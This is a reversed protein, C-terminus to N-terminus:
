ALGELDIDAVERLANLNYKAYVATSSATRHGLFDGIVKMSMGHDLLHQATAHRLAHPGRRGSVVGVRRLRGTVIFNMANRTLPRIPAALTFFLTRDSRPPRVERIYRFIAQGVGPSLPYIDTRGSKSHRVRLTEEEWDLDDLHLGRIEGSRLGYTVFLLLIARDRKDVPGDRDTTAILRTIDDRNPVVRLPEGQYMRPLRMADVTGSPCLGRAEAFRFFMRLRQAFSRITSRTPHGRLTKAEFARDIDTISISNLPVDRTFLHRFFEDTAACCSEITAESYGRESRAWAAFEAIEASHRHRPQDVPKELRGLFRLWLVAHSVLLERAKPSLPEPRSDVLKQIQLISLRDRNLLDLLGILRLQNAAVQRLTLRTGGSDARHQLYRLREESLSAAQYRAITSPRSFIQEYM